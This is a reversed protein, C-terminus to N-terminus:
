DLLEPKPLGLVYRENGLRSVVADRIDRPNTWGYKEDTFDPTINVLSYLDSLTAVEYEAIQDLLRQLVEDAESRSSLIIEDFDHTARSRRSISRTEDRDRISPQSMRNYNVHGNRNNYGGLRGSSRRSPSRTDGFLTREITTTLVDAIMDRAAPIMVELMVYNLVGTPEGGIFTEAFRKALPKKRRIVKGTVVSEVKKPSAKKEGEADRKNNSNSPYNEM